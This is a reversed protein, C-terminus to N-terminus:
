CSLFVFGSRRQWELRRLGDGGGAKGVGRPKELLHCRNERNFCWDRTYRLSGRDRSRQDEANECPGDVTADEWSEHACRGCDNNRSQGCRGKGVYRIGCARGGKYVGLVHRSV